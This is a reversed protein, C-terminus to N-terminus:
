PKQPPDGADHTAQEVGRDGAPGSQPTARARRGNRSGANPGAEGSVIVLDALRKEIEERLAQWQAHQENELRCGLADVAASVARVLEARLQEYDTEAPPQPAPPTAAEAARGASRVVPRPVLTLPVAQDAWVQPCGGFRGTCVAGCQPCTCSQEGAEMPHACGESIQPGFELCVGVL